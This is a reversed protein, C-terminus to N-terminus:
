AAPVFIRYYHNSASYPASIVNIWYWTGQSRGNTGDGAGVTSFVWSSGFDFIGCHQPDPCSFRTRAVNWRGTHTDWVWLAPEAKTLPGNSDSPSPLGEVPDPGFVLLRGDGTIGLPSRVGSIQASTGKVPIPPLPTWHVLDHSYYPRWNYRPPPAGEPIDAAFLCHCARSEDALPPETM